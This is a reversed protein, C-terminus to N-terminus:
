FFLLFFRLLDRSVPIGEQSSKSRSISAVHEESVDKLKFWVVCGVLCYEECILHTFWV